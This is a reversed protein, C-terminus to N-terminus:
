HLREHSRSNLQGEAVRNLVNTPNGERHSYRFGDIVSRLFNVDACPTLVTDQAHSELVHSIAEM